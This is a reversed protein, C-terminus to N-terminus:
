GDLGERNLVGDVLPPAERRWEDKQNQTAVCIAIVISQIMETISWSKAISGSRDM